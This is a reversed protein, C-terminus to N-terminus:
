GIGKVARMAKPRAFANQLSHATSQLVAAWTERARARNGAGEYAEALLALIFPDKQDAHQLEEIARAHRRAHLEVYGALYHWTPWEDKLTDYQQILSRAAGVHGRADEWKGARAAIRGQAHVWRLEWLALQATPADPQRRATEYGTEYWRRANDLDGTELFVRGLANATGAAAGWNEDATHRDFVQEYFTAAEHADGEFAYSVALANLVQVTGEDPALELAKSLHTRAEAFALALDLALGLGFHAEFLDPQLALAKRYRAIGEDIEGKTVLRRGEQALDLAAPSEQAALAPAGTAVLACWGVVVLVRRM